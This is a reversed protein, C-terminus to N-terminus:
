TIALATMGVIIALRTNKGLCRRGTGPFSLCRPFIDSPPISSSQNNVRDAWKEKIKKNRNRLFLTYQVLYFYKNIPPNKIVIQSIKRAPPTVMYRKIMQEIKETAIMTSLIM